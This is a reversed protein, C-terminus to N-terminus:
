PDDRTPLAGRRAANEHKRVAFANAETILGLVGHWSSAPNLVCIFHYGGYTPHPMVVDLATFDHEVASDVVEAFRARTLGINLRFVGPRDLESGDAYADTTVVTAWPIQREPPIDGHPDHLAFHDGGGELMRTGPFSALVAIVADLDPADSGM